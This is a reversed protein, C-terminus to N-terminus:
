WQLACVIIFHDPRFRHDLDSQFIFSCFVRMDNISNETSKKNESQSYILTLM